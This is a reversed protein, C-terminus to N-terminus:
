FFLNSFLKSAQKNYKSLTKKLSSITLNFGARWNGFPSAGDEDDLCLLQSETRFLLDLTTKGSFRALPIAFFEQVPLFTSVQLKGCTM